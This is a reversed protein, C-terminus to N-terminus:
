DPSCTGKGSVLKKQVGNNVATVYICLSSTGNNVASLAPCVGDNGDNVKYSVTSLNGNSSTYTESGGDCVPSIEPDDAWVYNFMSKELRSDVDFQANATYKTTKAGKLTSVAITSITLASVMIIMLIIFVFILAVEGRNKTNVRQKNM